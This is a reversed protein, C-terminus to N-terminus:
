HILVQCLSHESIYVLYKFTPANSDESHPHTQQGHVPTQLPKQNTQLQAEATCTYQM